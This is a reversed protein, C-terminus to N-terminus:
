FKLGSERVAEAFARIRGHYLYGGRDFVAKEIGKQRVDEALLSGLLKASEVNGGSLNNSNERFRKSLTSLSLLTKGSLDDILQCHLNKHSRHVCLRPREQTGFMTKRIRSHRKKRGIEKAIAM